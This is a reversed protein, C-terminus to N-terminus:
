QAAWGDVDNAAQMFADALALVKHADAILRQGWNRAEAPSLATDWDHHYDGIDWVDLEARIALEEVTGDTNQTGFAEVHGPECARM